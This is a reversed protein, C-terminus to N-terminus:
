QRALAAELVDPLRNREDPAAGQAPLVGQRGDRLASSLVPTTSVEPAHEPTATGNSSNQHRLALPRMGSDGMKVLGSAIFERMTYRGPATRVFRSEEGLRKIDVSLDRAVVTDPTKSRTPLRDGALEVIDRVSMPTKTERMVQEVTALTSMDEEEGLPQKQSDASIM